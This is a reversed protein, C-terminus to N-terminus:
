ATFTLRSGTTCLVLKEPMERKAAELFNNGSCHMPILHDSPLKKLEAMIEDQYDKADKTKASVLHLSLGWQRRRGISSPVTTVEDTTATGTMFAPGADRCGSSFRGVRPRRPRDGRHREGFGAPEGSLMM